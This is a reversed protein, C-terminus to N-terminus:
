FFRHRKKVPELKQIGGPTSPPPPPISEPMQPMSPLSGSYSPREGRRLENRLEDMSRALAKAFDTFESLKSEVMDNLSVLGQAIKRNQEELADIRDFIPNIKEAIIISEHEEERLDQAADELIEIFGGLKDSLDNISRKLGVDDIGKEHKKLEKRLKNVESQPLIEFDNAM